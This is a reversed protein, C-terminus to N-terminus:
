RTYKQFDETIELIFHSLILLEPAGFSFTSKRKPTRRHAM